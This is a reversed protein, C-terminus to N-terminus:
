IIDGQEPEARFHQHSDPKKQPGRKSRKPQDPQNPDKEKKQKAKPCGPPVPVEASEDRKIGMDREIDVGRAELEEFLRKRKGLQSVAFNFTETCVLKQHNFDSTELSPVIDCIRKWGENIVGRRKTESATHNQKRQADSLTPKGYRSQRRSVSETQSSSSPTSM